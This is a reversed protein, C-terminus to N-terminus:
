LFNVISNDFNHDFHLLDIEDNKNSYQPHLKIKFSDFSDDHDDDMQCDNSRPINWHRWSDSFKGVIQIM